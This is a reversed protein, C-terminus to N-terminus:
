IINCWDIKMRGSLYTIGVEDLRVGYVLVPADEMWVFDEMKSICNKDIPHQSGKQGDYL